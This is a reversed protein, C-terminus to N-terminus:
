RQLLLKQLIPFRELFRLLLSNYTARNRPMTVTLTGWDSVGYSYKVRARITYTGEESWAHSLTVGEGSAFPGFWDEFQGDGWYIDYYLDDGYPDAALFTYEYAIGVTGSTPGIIKPPPPPLPEWILAWTTDNVTSNPGDTSDTVYLIVTYNGAETYTHMPNQIDSAGGDGFGWKWSYPSSGCTAYGHFQINEYVYGLYPGGADVQMSVCSLIFDYTTNEVISLLV